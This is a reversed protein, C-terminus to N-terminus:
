LLYPRRVELSFQMVQRALVWGGCTSIITCAFFQSQAKRQGVDINYIGMGHTDSYNLKAM